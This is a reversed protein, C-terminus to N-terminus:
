GQKNSLAVLVGALAFYKNSGLDAITKIGLGDSLIQDRKETLGHGRSCYAAALKKGTEARANIVASCAVVRDNPATATGICTQWNADGEASAAPPQAFMVAAGLLSATLHPLHRM